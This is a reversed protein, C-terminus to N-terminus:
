HKLPMKTIISERAKGFFHDVTVGGSRKAAAVGYKSLAFSMSMYRVRWLILADVPNLSGATAVPIDSRM